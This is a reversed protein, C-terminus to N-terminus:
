KLFSAGAGIAAGGVAGWPGLAAGAAGGSIAGDLWSADASNPQLYPTKWAELNRNARNEDVQIDTNRLNGIQDYIQSDTRDGTTTPNLYPNYTNNINASGGSGFAANIGAQRQATRNSADNKYQQAQKGQSAELQTYFDGAGQIAGRRLNEGLLSSNLAGRNQLQGFVNKLNDNFTDKYRGASFQREQELAQLQEPSLNETNTGLATEYQDRLNNRFDLADRTDEAFKTPLDATANLADEKGQERIDETAQNADEIKGGVTQKKYSFSKTKNNWTFGYDAGSEKKWKKFGPLVDELNFKSNSQAKTVLAQAEEESMGQSIAYDYAARANSQAKNQEQSGTIAEGGSGGYTAEATNQVKNSDKKTQAIGEQRDKETIGSVLGPDEQKTDPIAAPLGGGGKSASGTLAAKAGGAASAIAASRKRSNPNKTVM